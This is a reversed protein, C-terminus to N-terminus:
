KTTTNAAIGATPLFPNAANQLSAVTHLKGGQVVSQIRQLASLDQLPNDALVIFDAAYGASLQGIEQGLGLHRAADSTTLQLVQWSTLGAQQHLQMERLLFPGSSVADTGLLLPVGAEYLRRILELVKPLQQQAAAFDQETWNYVLMGMNARWSQRVDPHLVSLAQEPYLQNSDAFHYLLENFTATLDVRIQKEALTRFLRQLAPSDFDVYEFWQYVYRTDYPNKRLALYETRAPEALLEASTPLAHTLADIGLDAAYQWSVGDLHAITKLGAAKALKIGQALEAQTLGQYLKIVNVGLAQQRAIEAQWSAETSPYVSGGIIPTPEFVEGAYLMRPGLWAGQQQKAVYHANAAAEGAPNFITTVGAALTTLAHYQTLEPTGTVALVPQGNRMEVRHPGATMHLHADVLGPLVYQQQLDIQTVANPLAGQGTQVIRGDAVLLWADRTQQQTAPEIVTANHYLVTEALVSQSLLASFLLPKIVGKRM